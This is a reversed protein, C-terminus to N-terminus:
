LERLSGATRPIPLIGTKDPRRLQYRTRARKKGNRGTGDIMGVVIVVATEGSVNTKYRGGLKVDTAKM